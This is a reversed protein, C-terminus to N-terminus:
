KTTREENDEVKGIMHQGTHTHTIWLTIETGLVFDFSSKRDLSSDFKSGTKHLTGTYHM